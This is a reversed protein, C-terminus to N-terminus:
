AAALPAYKGSAAAQKDSLTSLTNVLEDTASKLDAHITKPDEFYLLQTWYTNLAAVVWSSFITNRELSELPRILFLTFFSVASLGAFLLSPLVEVANTALFGKIIAGIATAIGVLFLTCYMVLLLLYSRSLYQSSSHLNAANEVLVSAAFQKVEAIEAPLATGSSAEPVPTPLPPIPLLTSGPPGAPPRPEPFAPLPPEPANHTAEPNTAM